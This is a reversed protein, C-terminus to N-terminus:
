YHNNDIKHISELSNIQRIREKGIERAKAEAEAKQEANLIHTVTTKEEKVFATNKTLEIFDPSNILSKIFNQLASKYNFVTQTCVAEDIPISNFNTKEEFTFSKGNSSFFTIQIIWSGKETEFDIRNLHASITVPSQLDFRNAQIFEDILAYRIVDAYTWNNPAQIIATSRCTLEKRFSADSFDGINIPIEVTNQVILTTEPDPTYHPVTKFITCGSAVFSIVLIALIKKM